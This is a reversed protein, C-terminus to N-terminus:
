ERYIKLIDSHKLDSTLIFTKVKKGDSITIASTNPPVSGLNLAHLILINEGKKLPLTIEKHANTVRYNELVWTDNLRISCTDGDESADDWIEIKIEHESTTFSGRTYVTREYAELTDVDIPKIKEPKPQKQWKRFEFNYTVNLLLGMQTEKTQVTGSLVNNDYWSIDSMFIYKKLPIFGSLSFDLSRDNWNFRLGFEPELIFNDKQVDHYTWTNGTGNETYNSTYDQMNVWGMDLARFNNSYMINLQFYNRELFFKRISVKYTFYRYYDLADELLKGKFTYSPLSWMYANRQRMISVGFSWNDLVADKKLNYHFCFGYGGSFILTPHANGDETVLTALSLLRTRRPSTFGQGTLNTYEPLSGIAVNIRPAFTFSRFKQADCVTFLFFSIFFISFKM